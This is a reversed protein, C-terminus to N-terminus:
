YPASTCAWRMRWQEAATDLVDGIDRMDIGAITADSGAKEIAEMLRRKAMAKDPAVNTPKNFFGV